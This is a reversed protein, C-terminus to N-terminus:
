NMDKSVLPLAFLGTSYSQLINKNYDKWNLATRSIAPNITIKGATKPRFIINRKLEENEESENLKRLNISKIKSCFSTLGQVSKVINFVSSNNRKHEKEPSNKISMDNSFSCNKNISCIVNYMHNTKNDKYESSHVIKKESLVINKNSVNGTCFRNVKNNPFQKWIFKKSSKNKSDKKNIISSCDQNEKDNYLKSFSNKSGFIDFLYNERDQFNITNSSLHNEGDFLNRTNDYRLKCSTVRMENNGRSRSRSSNIRNKNFVYTM